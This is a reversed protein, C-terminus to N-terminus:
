LMLLIVDINDAGVAKNGGLEDILKSIERGNVPVIYMFKMQPEVMCYTVLKEDRNILRINQPMKNAVNILSDTMTNCMITPESTVEDTENNVIETIISPANFILYKM